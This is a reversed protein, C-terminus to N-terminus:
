IFTVEFIMTALPALQVSFGGTQVIVSTNIKGSGGYEERDTNFAETVDKTNRLPIFYEPLFTPTFNHVCAFIRDDSKRLYSIVSNERDSFDVWEFGKPDFDYKWLPSSNKYFHNADSIMKQLAKHKPFQLLHWPLEEKCYWEGFQGLESGM